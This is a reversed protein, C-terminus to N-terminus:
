SSNNNKEDKDQDGGGDGGGSGLHAASAPGESGEGSGSRAPRKGKMWTDRQAARARNDMGAQIDDVQSSDFLDSDESTTDQDKAPSGRMPRASKPRPSLPDAASANLERLRRLYSKVYPRISHHLPPPRYKLPHTCLCDCSDSCLSCWWRWRPECLSCSLSPLSSDLLPLNDCQM